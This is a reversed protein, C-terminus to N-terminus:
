ACHDFREPNPAPPPERGLIALFVEVRAQEDPVDVAADVQVLDWCPRQDFQVEEVRGRLVAGVPQDDGGSPASTQRVWGPPSTSTRSLLSTRVIVLTQIPFVVQAAASRAPVNLSVPFLSIRRAM